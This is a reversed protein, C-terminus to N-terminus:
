RGGLEANRDLAERVGLTVAKSTITAGTVADIDKRVEVPDDKNKSIFQAIFKNVLVKDGFGPTEKHTLVEFGTVKGDTIGVFMDMPGGYGVPSVRIIRGVPTGNQSAEYYILDGERREDFTDAGPLVRQQLAGIKEAINADIRPKTQVYTFGLIAAAAIAVMLLVLAPGGFKSGSDSPGTPAGGHSQHQMGMDTSM